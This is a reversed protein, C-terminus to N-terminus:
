LKNMIWAGLEALIGALAILSVMGIFLIIYDIETAQM